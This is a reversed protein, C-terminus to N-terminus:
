QATSDKPQHHFVTRIVTTDEFYVSFTEYQWKFIAPSGIPPHQQNPNGFEAVVEDMTMGREPLVMDADTPRQDGVPITITDAQTLSPFSLVISLFLAKATTSLYPGSIMIYLEM